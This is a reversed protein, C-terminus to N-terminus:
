VLRSRAVSSGEVIQHAGPQANQLWIEFEEAIVGRSFLFGQGFLCNMQRLTDLQGHTEVGEAIVKLGLGHAMQIVAKVIEKSGRGKGLGQVFVRDIKLTSLPLRSLYSLSSYGTGFDDIALEIQREQLADLLYQRSSLSDLFVGETLELQLRSGPIGSLSLSYDLNELFQSDNLQYPSINISLRFTDPVLGLFRVAEQCARTLALRGFRGILGFDEALPIFSGPHLWGGDPKLLRVLAEAGVAMGSALSIIPQFTVVLEEKALASRLLIERSEREAIQDAMAVEYPSYGDHAGRKVSAMAIEANRVLEEAEKGDDPFTASGISATVVLQRADIEFPNRQAELLRKATHEVQLPDESARLVIAFEDTGVRALTDSERLCSRLRKAVLGLLQNGAGTGLTENISQFSDLNLFLLAVWQNRERAEAIAQQLRDRLLLRNPLDTLTDYFAARHSDNQARRRERVEQRLRRTRRRVERQLAYNALLTLILVILVGGLTWYVWKPVRSVSREGPLWRGLGRYYASGPTDKFQQLNHDIAVLIAGDTQKPAAFRIEIPDFIISTAAVQHDSKRGLGYLRGVM